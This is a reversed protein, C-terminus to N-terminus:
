GHVIPFIFPKGSLVPSNSTILATNVYIFKSDSLEKNFQDVLAKLKDNFILVAKNEEEVCVNSGKIGHTSIEHPICGTLGLGILAFKRAGAQHLAQWSFGM